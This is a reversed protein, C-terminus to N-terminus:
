YIKIQIGSPLTLEMQVKSPLDVLEKKKTLDTKLWEKVYSFM